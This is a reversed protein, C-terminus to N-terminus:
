ISMRATRPTTGAWLERHQTSGTQAAPWAEGAMVHLEKTKKLITDNEYSVRNNVKDYTGTM